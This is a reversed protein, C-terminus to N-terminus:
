RIWTNDIIADHMIYLNHVPSFLFPYVRKERKRGEKEREMERQRDTQRWRDRPSQQFSIYCWLEKDRRKSRGFNSTCLTFSSSSYKRWRSSAQYAFCLTRECRSVYLNWRSDPPRFMDTVFISLSTVNALITTWWMM